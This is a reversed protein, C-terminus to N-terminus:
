SESVSSRKLVLTFYRHLIESKKVQLILPYITQSLCKYAGTISAELANESKLDTAEKSLLARQLPSTDLVSFLHRVKRGWGKLIQPITPSINSDTKTRHDLWQYIKSPVTRRKATHFILLGSAFFNLPSTYDDPQRIIYYYWYFLLDSPPM